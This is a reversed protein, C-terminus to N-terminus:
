VSAASLRSGAIGARLQDTNFLIPTQGARSVVGNVACGSSAKDAGSAGASTAHAGFQPAPATAEGHAADVARGPARKPVLNVTGGISGTRRSMGNLMASPGKLVESAREPLEAPRHHAAPHRLSRRVHLRRQQGRLRPHRMDDIALRQRTGVRRPLSPDDILSMRSGVQAQQDQAKKATYSTQNFPTDMVDRNGLVVRSPRRHAVEGGAYPPPLNDIMAQPPVPYGQVQVPDLVVAGSSSPAAVTVSGSSTFRYTVGTGSLLRQLAQEASMTGTVGDSSKEPSPLRLRRHDAPRIASRFGDLGISLPQAPHDFSATRALQAM